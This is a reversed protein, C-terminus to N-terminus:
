TKLSKEWKGFKVIWRRGIEKLIEIGANVSDDYYRCEDLYREVQSTDTIWEPNIKRGESYGSAYTMIIYPDDSNLMRAAKKGPDDTCIAPVLEIVELKWLKYKTRKQFIIVGLMSDQQNM